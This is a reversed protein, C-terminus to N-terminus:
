QAAEIETRSTFQMAKDCSAVTLGEGDCTAAGNILLAGLGACDEGGLVFQRVRSRNAPIAGFDLMTMQDVQGNADFLVAELILSELDADFSNTTHFSLRCGAEVSEAANLEVALRPTAGQASASLPLSIAAMFAILSRM